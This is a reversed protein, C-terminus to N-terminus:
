EDFSNAYAQQCQDLTADTPLTASIKSWRLMRKLEARKEEALGLLPGPRPFFNSTPLAKYAEKAAVLAAPPLHKLTDYYERWAITWAEPTKKEGYVAILPELIAVLEQKTIGRDEAELVPLAAAAAARMDPNQIIYLIAEAARSSRGLSHTLVKSLTTM